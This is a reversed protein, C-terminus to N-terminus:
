RGAPEFEVRMWNNSVAGARNSAVQLVNTVNAGNTRTITTNTSILGGTISTLSGVSQVLRVYADALAGVNGTRTVQLGAEFQTTTNTFAGTDLVTQYGCVIRLANTGALLSGRWTTIESDETNTLTNGSVIFEGANTYTTITTNLNTFAPITTKKYLIGGVAANSSSQGARMMINSRFYAEMWNTTPLAFNVAAANTQTGLVELTSGLKVAGANTFTGRHEVAAFNTQGGAITVAGANTHAGLITADGSVTLTQALVTGFYNTGSLTVNAHPPSGHIAGAVTQATAARISNTAGVAVVGPHVTLGSGTVLIPDRNTSRLNYGRIETLGGGHELVTNQAYANEGSLSVLASINTVFIGPTTDPPGNQDFEGIRGRLQGHSVYVWGNSGSVKDVEVWTVLNTDTIGGPTELRIVPGVRCSIKQSRLYHSGSGYANFANGNQTDTAQWQLIDAWVKYNRSKGVVYIKGDLRDLHLHLEAFDTSNSNYAQVALGGLNDWRKGYVSLNGIVWYLPYAGTSLVYQSGPDAPCNTVTIANTGHPHGNFVYDINFVSNSFCDRVYLASPFPAPGYIGIRTSAYWRIDSRANTVVIAGFANTHGTASCIDDWHVNTGPCYNITLSGLVTNSAAGGSHRDDFVGCGHDLVSGMYTLSVDDFIWTLLGAKALNTVGSYDGKRVKITDGAQAAVKAAYPTLFPKSSDNRLGTSDNGVIADVWITNGNTAAARLLANSSAVDMPSIFNTQWQSINTALDPATIQRSYFRGSADQTATYFISTSTIVRTRTMRSLKTGAVCLLIIALSLLAAVWPGRQRPPRIPSNLITNM